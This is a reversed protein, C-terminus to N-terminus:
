PNGIGVKKSAPLSSELRAIFENRQMTNDTCGCHGRRANLWCSEELWTKEHATLM